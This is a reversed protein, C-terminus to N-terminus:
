IDGSQRQNHVLGLIVRDQITSIILYLGDPDTISQTHKIFGSKLDRVRDTFHTKVM